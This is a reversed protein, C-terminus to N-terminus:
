GNLVEIIIENNPDSNWLTEALDFYVDFSRFFSVGKKFNNISNTFGYEIHKTTIFRDHFTEETLLRKKGTNDNDYKETGNKEFKKKRIVKLKINKYLQFTNVNKFEDYLYDPIENQCALFRFEVMSLKYNQSVSFLKKFKELGLNCCLYPDAVYIYEPLKDEFGKHSAMDIVTKLLHDFAKDSENGLFRVFESEEERKIIQTWRSRLAEISSIEVNIPYNKPIKQIEYKKPNSFIYKNMKHVIPNGGGIFKMNRKYVCKNTNLNYIEVLINNDSDQLDIDIFRERLEYAKKLILDSASKVEINAVYKNAIFKDDFDKKNIKFGITLFKNNQHSVTVDVENVQSFELINGIRDIHYNLNVNCFEKFLPKDNLNLWINKLYLDTCWYEKLNCNSYFPSIIQNYKDAYFDERQLLFSERPTNNVNFNVKKNDIKLSKNDIISKIFNDLKENCLYGEYIYFSNKGNLEKILHIDQEKKDFSTKMICTLVNFLKDDQEITIITIKAM